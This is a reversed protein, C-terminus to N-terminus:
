DLLVEWAPSGSVGSTLMGSSPCKTFDAAGADALGASFYALCCFAARPSAFGLLFCAFCAVLWEAVCFLWVFVTAAAGAEVFCVSVGAEAGADVAAAFCDPLAAETM